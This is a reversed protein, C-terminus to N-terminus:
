AINNKFNVLNNGILLVDNKGGYVTATIAIFDSLGLRVRGLKITNRVLMVIFDDVRVTRIILFRLFRYNRRFLRLLRRMVLLVLQSNLVVFRTICERGWSRRNCTSIKISFEFGEHRALDDLVLERDSFARIESTLQHGLCM